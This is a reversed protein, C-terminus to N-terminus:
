FIGEPFLGLITPDYIYFYGVICSFVLAFCSALVAVVKVMPFAMEIQTYSLNQNIQEQFLFKNM